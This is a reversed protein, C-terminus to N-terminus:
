AEKKAEFDPAERQVCNNCLHALKDETNNVDFKNLAFRLYCKQSYTKKSYKKELIKKQTNKKVDFKNLAFRLYCKQSYKKKTNKKLIKKSYKKLIKNERRIRKARLASLMETLIYKKQTYMYSKHTNQSYPKKQTYMYSKQTHQKQTYVYKQSYKTLQTYIHTSTNKQAHTNFYSMWREYQTACVCVCVYM